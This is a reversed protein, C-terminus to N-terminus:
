RGLLAAVRERVQEAPVAGERLVEVEGGVALPRLDVVTSARGTPAAVAGGVAHGEAGQARGGPVLAVACAALVEPDADDASAADPMGSRNASTAALPVGVARLFRLLEPHDPVRVGLSEATGVHPPRPVGTGLVFTYPGPLLAELVRVALDDLDPLATAIAEVSSFLVQVPREEGRGKAEFLAHVGRPSDWAAALGYVTDTPLGVIAGARLAASAAREALV